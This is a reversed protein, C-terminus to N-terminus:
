KKLTGRGTRPVISKGRRPRICLEFVYMIPLSKTPFVAGRLSQENGSSQLPSLTCGCTESVGHIRSINGSSRTFGTGGGCCMKCPM